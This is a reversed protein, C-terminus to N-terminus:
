QAGAILWSSGQPRPVDHYSVCDRGRSVLYINQSYFFFTIRTQWWGRACLGQFEPLKRLSLFVPLTKQELIQDRVGAASM